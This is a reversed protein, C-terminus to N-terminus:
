FSDGFITRIAAQQILNDIVDSAAKTRAEAQLKRNIADQVEEFPTYGGEDREIVKVLTISSDSELPESIQGEPIEFM